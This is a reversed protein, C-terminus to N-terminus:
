DAKEAREWKLVREAILAAFQQPEELMLHHHLGQQPVVETGLEAFRANMYELVESPMLASQTGYVFTSPCPLPKELDHYRDALDNGLRNFIQDDFKWHWGQDNFAVSYRAIHELIYPPCDQAPVLRFREIINDRSPYYRRPRIPGSSQHQSYDYDPPRIPSDAIVLGACIDPHSQTAHLCMAGGFSHGVLYVGRGSVLGADEAVAAIADAFIGRSYDEWFDSDGMGPLDIAAVCMRDDLLGAIFDWWHSHAGSGHVLLLGPAGEGPGPWLQYCLRKGRFDIAHQQRPRALAQRFWEPAQESM